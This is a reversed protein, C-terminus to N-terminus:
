KQGDPLSFATEYTKEYESVDPWFDVNAFGPEFKGDKNYHTWGTNAGDDPTTFWGQYGAMALGKYSTYNCGTEDYKAEEVPDGSEEGQEERGKKNDGDSCNINLSLILTFILLWYKKM